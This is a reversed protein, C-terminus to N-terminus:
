SRGTHARVLASMPKLRREEARCVEAFHGKMTERLNQDLRSLYLTEYASEPLEVVRWDVDDVHLWVSTLSVRFKELDAASFTTSDGAFAKSGHLLHSNFTVTTGECYDFYTRDLTSLDWAIPSGGVYMNDLLQNKRKTFFHTNQEAMKEYLPRNAASANDAVFLGMDSRALGPITDKHINTWLTVMRSQYGNRSFFHVSGDQHINEIKEVDRLRMKWLSHYLPVYQEFVDGFFKRYLAATLGHLELFHEPTTIDNAAASSRYSFRRELGDVTSRYVDSETDLQRTAIRNDFM